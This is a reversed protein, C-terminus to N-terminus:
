WFPRRERELSSPWVEETITTSSDSFNFDRIALRSVLNATTLKGVFIKPRDFFAIFNAKASHLYPIRLYSSLAAKPPYLHGYSPPFLSEGAFPQYTGTSIHGLWINITKAPLIGFYVEFSPTAAARM